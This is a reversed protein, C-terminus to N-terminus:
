ALRRYLGANKTLVVELARRFDAEPRAILDEISARVLEEMLLGRRVAAFMLPKPVAGHASSALLLVLWRKLRVYGLMALAHGFSNIEVSLGFAPSNLYRMLRFALTPDKKLIAELRPVPDERDVGDILEFVVQVDQPLSKRGAPPVVPDDIPWGLTAVAGRQFAAEVAALTRVGGQVFSVERPLGGEGPAMRREEDADVLAHAFGALLAPPLAGVPRGKIVLPSGAAMLAQLAPQHEPAGVMFAPVELMWHPCPGQAMVAQLLAEGAINLVLPPPAAAAARAKVAAPDLPRLQLSLQPAAEVPAPWVTSLAAVLAVADPAVGPRDPFVTLRTAVVARQRDIMPSYGLAVQGLLPHDHM